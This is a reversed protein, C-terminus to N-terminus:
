TAGWPSQLWVCKAVHGRVQIDSGSATPSERAKKGRGGARCGLGLVLRWEGSSRTGWGEDTWRWSTDVERGAM